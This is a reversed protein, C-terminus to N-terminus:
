MSIRLCEHAHIFDLLQRNVKVGRIGSRMRVPQTSLRADRISFSLKTTGPSDKIISALDALLSGGTSNVEEELEEDAPSASDKSMTDLDIHITLDTMEKDAVDRLFDVGYVPSYFHADNLDITGSLRPRQSDGALSLNGSALGRLGFGAEELFVNIPAM